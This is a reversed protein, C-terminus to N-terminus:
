RRQARLQRAAADRAHATLSRVGDLLTANLSHSAVIGRLDNRPWRRIAPAAAAAVLRGVRDERLHARVGEVFQGAGGRSAEGLAYRGARSLGHRELHVAAAEPDLGYVEAVREFDAAHRRDDAALRGSVFHGVLHALVDLGSPLLVPVGFLSQDPAAREFIGKTDMRYSGYPFLSRHLDVDIEFDRARLTVANESRGRPELGADLLASEAASFREPRVLADVDLLPRPAESGPSLALFLVGKLPVTEIGRARLLGAVRAFAERAALGRAANLADSHSTERM